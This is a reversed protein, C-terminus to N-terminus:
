ANFTLLAIFLILAILSYERILRQSLDRLLHHQIIALLIFQLGIYVLIAIIGNAPWFSSILLLEASLISFVLLEARFPVKTILTFYASVYAVLGMWLAFLASNIKWGAQYYGYGWIFFLILGIFFLASTGAKKLPINKIRGISLVNLTLLLFYSGIGALIIVLWGLTENGILALLNHITVFYLCSPIAVAILLQYSRELDLIWWIVVGLLICSVGIMLNAGISNLFGIRFTSLYLLITYLISTLIIKQRKTRKLSLLEM